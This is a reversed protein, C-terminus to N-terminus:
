AKNQSTKEAGACIKQGEAKYWTARQTRFSQNTSLKIQIILNPALYHRDCPVTTIDQSMETVIKSDPIHPYICDTYILVAGVLLTRLNFQHSL